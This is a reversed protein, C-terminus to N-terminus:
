KGGKDDSITIGSIDNNAILNEILQNMSNRIDNANTRLVNAQIQKQLFEKLLEVTILQAYQPAVESIYQQRTEELIKYFDELNPNYIEDPMMEQMKTRRTDQIM